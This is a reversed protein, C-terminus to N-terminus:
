SSKKQWYIVGFGGIIISTMGLLMQATISEKFLYHSIILSFIINSYYLNSVVEPSTFKVALTLFYQFLFFLGGIIILALWHINNGVCNWYPLSVIGAILSSILLYYYLSKISDDTKSIKAMMVTSLAALLASGLALAASVSFIRNDIHLSLAAGTFGIIIFPWLTHNIRTRLILLGVLPIFLPFTNYLM